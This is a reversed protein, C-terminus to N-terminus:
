RGMNREALTAPLSNGLLDNGDRTIFPYSFLFCSLNNYKNGEEEVATEPLPPYFL